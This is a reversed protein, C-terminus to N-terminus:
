DSPRTIGFVPGSSSVRAGYCSFFVPSLCGKVLGEVAKDLSLGVLKDKTNFWDGMVILDSAPITGLRTGALKLKLEKGPASHVRLSSSACATSYGYPGGDPQLPIVRATADLMEIRLPMEPLCLAFKVKWDHRGRQYRIGACGM